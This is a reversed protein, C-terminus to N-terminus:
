PLRLEVATGDKGPYPVTAEARVHGRFRVKVVVTERGLNPLVLTGDPGTLLPVVQVNGQLLAYAAHSGTQEVALPQFPLPRGDADVTRVRLSWGDDERLTVRAVGETGIEVVASTPVLGPETLWVTHRGPKAREIRFRGGADTREPALLGDVTIRVGAARRGDRRFVEGELAARPQPGPGGGIGIASGPPSPMDEISSMVELETKGSAITTQEFGSREGGEVVVTLPLGAVRPVGRVRTRGERDTPAAAVHVEHVRDDYQEDLYAAKVTAGQVPREEDDVVRVTLDLEPWLVVTVRVHAADVSLTPWLRYRLGNRTTYGPPADFVVDVSHSRDASLPSLAIRGNELAFDGYRSVLRVRPPVFSQGTDVARFEIDLPLLGPLRVVTVMEDLLRGAATFPDGVALFEADKPGTLLATGRADTRVVQQALPLVTVPIGPLPRDGPGLFTLLWRSGEARPRDTEASDEPKASRDSLPAGSGADRGRPPPRDSDGGWLLLVVAALVALLPLIYRLRM